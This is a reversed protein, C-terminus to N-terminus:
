SKVLEIRIGTVRELGSDSFQIAAVQRLVNSPMDESIWLVIPDRAEISVTVKWRAVVHMM